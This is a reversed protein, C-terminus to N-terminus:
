TKVTSPLRSRRLLWLLFLFIPLAVVCYIQALSLGFADVTSSGGKRFEEMIFRSVCYLGLYGLLVEGDRHPRRLWRDLLVFWFLHFVAEYLQAPHSPPTLVGGEQYFRVAWPLDCAHGYCCGNLFCGIRGFASALAFGPACLDAFALFPLHHRRCYYYLYGFGFLPAGLFTLGGTWIKFIDLPNDRFQPWNLAVYLVRTGLIGMFLGVLSADFVHDPTIVGPDSPKLSAMRRRAARMVYWLGLLFGVLVLVGYSRIPIPGIHFLVPHM